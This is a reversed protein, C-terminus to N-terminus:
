SWETVKREAEVQNASSHNQTWFTKNAKYHRRMQQQQVRKEKAECKNGETRVLQKMKAHM